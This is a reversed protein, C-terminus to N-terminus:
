CSRGLSDLFTHVAVVEHDHQEITKNDVIGTAESGPIYGPLNYLYVKLSERLEEPLEKSNLFEIMRKLDLAGKISESTIMVCYTNRYYTLASLVLLLTKELRPRWIDSGDIPPPIHSAIVDRIERASGKQLLEKFNINILNM